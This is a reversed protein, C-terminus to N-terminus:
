VKEKVTVPGAEGDNEREQKGEQNVIASSLM